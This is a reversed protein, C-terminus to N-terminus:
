SKGPPTPPAPSPPLAVPFNTSNNVGVSLIYGDDPLDFNRAYKIEPFGSEKLGEYLLKAGAPPSAPNFVQIFVGSVSLHAARMPLPMLTGEISTQLNIGATQLCSMLDVALGNPEPSDIATVTVARPFQSTIPRFVQGIKECQQPSIHRERDALRRQTEEEVRLEFWGYGIATATVSLFALAIVWGVVSLAPHRKVGQQPEGVFILWGLGFVFLGLNFYQSTAIESVTTMYGGGAKAAYAWFDIRGKFDPINNFVFLAFAV